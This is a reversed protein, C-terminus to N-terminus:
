PNKAMKPIWNRELGFNYKDDVVSAWLMAPSTTARGFNGNKDIAIASGYRGLRDNMEELANETAKQKLSVVCVNSYM